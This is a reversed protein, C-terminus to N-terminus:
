RPLSPDQCHLHLLHQLLHRGPEKQFKSHLCNSSIMLVLKAENYIKAGIFGCGDAMAVANNFGKKFRYLQKLDAISYVGGGQRHKQEEHRVRGHDPVLQPGGAYRQPAELDRPLALFYIDADATHPRGYEM